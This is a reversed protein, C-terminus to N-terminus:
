LIDIISIKNKKLDILSVFSRKGPSIYTNDSCDVDLLADIKIMETKNLQNLDIEFIVENGESVMKNSLDIIEFSYNSIESNILTNRYNINISFLNSSSTKSSINNTSRNTEFNNQTNFINNQANLNENNNNNSGDINANNPNIQEEFTKVLFLLNKTKHINFDLIEINKMNIPFKLYSVREVKLNKQQLNFNLDDNIIYEKKSIVKFIFHFLLISYHSQNIDFYWVFLLKEIYNVGKSDLCNNNTKFYPFFNPNEEIWKIKKVSNQNLGQLRLFNQITLKSSIKKTISSNLASYYERLQNLLNKITDDKIQHKLYFKNLLGLEKKDEISKENANNKEIEMENSNCSDKLGTAFNSELFVNEYIKSRKLIKELEESVKLEKNEKNEEKFKKIFNINKFIKFNSKDLVNRDNGNSNNKDKKISDHNLYLYREYNDVNSLKIKELDLNTMETQNADKEIFNILNNLNYNSNNIFYFLRNYDIPFSNLITKTNVNSDNIKEREKFIQNFSYLWSLFNRYNIKVENIQILFDEYKNFINQCIFNIKEPLGILDELNSAEKYEYNSFSKFVNFGNSIRGDKTDENYKLCENIIKIQNNNHVLTNICPKINEILIDEINKLNFHIKEDLKTLFNGEFLFKHMFNKLKEDDQYYGLYFLVKLQKNLTKKFEEKNEAYQLNNAFLYEDDFIDGLKYFTRNFIGLINNIYNIIQNSDFILYCLLTINRYFDSLLDMNLFKFNLSIEESSNKNAAKELLLFNEKEFFKIDFIDKEGAELELGAINEKKLAAIKIIHGLTLELDFDNKQKNIIFSPTLKLKNNIFNLYSVDVKSFSNFILDKFYPNKRSVEDISFHNLNSIQLCNNNNNNEASKAESGIIRNLDNLKNNDDAAAFEFDECIFCDAASNGFFMQIEPNSPFVNSNMKSEKRNLELPNSKPIFPNKTLKHSLLVAGTIYDIFNVSKDELFVVIIEKDEIFKIDLIECKERKKFIEEHKFGLRQLEYSKNYCIIILDIKSNWVLCKIKEQLVKESIIELLKNEQM